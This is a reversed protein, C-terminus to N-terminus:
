LIKRISQRPKMFGKILNKELIPLFFGLNNEEERVCCEVSMLSRGGEKRRFNFRDVGSILHLTGYVTM